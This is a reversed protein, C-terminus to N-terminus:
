PHRRIFAAFRRPDGVLDPVNVSVTYLKGLSKAEATNRKIPAEWVDPDNSSPHFGHNSLYTEVQQRTVQAGPKFLDRHAAERILTFRNGSQVEIDLVDGEKLNTQKLLDAPFTIIGGTLTVQFISKEM